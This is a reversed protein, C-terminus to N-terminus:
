AILIRDRFSGAVEHQYSITKEPYKWCWVKNNPAPIDAIWLGKSELGLAKLKRQWDDVLKNIETDIQPNDQLDRLSLLKNVQGQVKDTMPYVIRLLDKAEDLTFEKKTHIQYLM